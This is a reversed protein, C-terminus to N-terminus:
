VRHAAGNGEQDGRRSPLKGTRRRNLDHAADREDAADDVSIGPTRRRRKRSPGAFGATSTGVGEIPRVGAPTEEIYVGPPRTEVRAFFKRFIALAAIGGIATGILLRFNFNKYPDRRRNIAM